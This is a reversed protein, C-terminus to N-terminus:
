LNLTLLLLASSPPEPESEPEPEPMKKTGVTSFSMDNADQSSQVWIVEFSESRCVCVGTLESSITQLLFHFLSCLVNREGRTGM